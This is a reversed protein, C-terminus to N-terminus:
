KAALASEIAATVSADDPKTQPKFRQVVNGKKDILFKGFNWEIDGPFKADKGTLQTYLPHQEAGKVHVKDLLPFSVSYKSSCFQKIEENTGPEQSGFDNCPVGLVTFGKEKYKQQIAELQKYQPTLGCQSAVNVLLVVKGDYAKLSTEKGNIDKLPVDQISGAFLPLSMSLAWALVLKKM